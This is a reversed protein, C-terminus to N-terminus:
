PFGHSTPASAVRDQVQGPPEAAKGNDQHAPVPSPNTAQTSTSM